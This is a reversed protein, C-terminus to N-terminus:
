DLLDPEQTVILDWHPQFNHWGSKPRGIQAATLTAQEHSLPRPTGAAEATLQVQCANELAMFWWAAEDISQGVTLLGHNQLIVAKRTGLAAAINEGESAPRAVGGYDDYLGHDGYFVCADQTLPDLLKGLTSFAKGFTSHAHAAANVDPRARHVHAHITFAARNLQSQEGVVVRGDDNVLILDSVRIRSFHLFWPNVWFHDTLIPDRM